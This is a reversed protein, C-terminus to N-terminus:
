FSFSLGMSAKNVDNVQGFGSVLSAGGGLDHSFNVGLADSDESDAYALVLKSGGMTYSVDVGWGTDGGDQKVYLVNTGIDGQTFGMGASVTKESDYGMGVTVGSATFSMGFAYQTDSDVGMVGNDTQGTRTDDDGGVVGDAGLDYAARYAALAALEADTAATGETVGDIQTNDAANIRAPGMGIINTATEETAVGDPDVTITSGDDAIVVTMGGFVANYAVDGPVGSFHAIQGMAPTVTWVTADVAATAASNGTSFGIKIQGFENSYNIQKASTERLDEVVDDVGIGNLGVDAIGGALDSGRGVDGISITGFAGAVSVSGENVDADKSEFGVSAGFSLGGDTTASGSFSIGVEHVFSHKAAGGEPDSTYDFGLEASGSIMPEAFAAGGVLALATTATLLKKM